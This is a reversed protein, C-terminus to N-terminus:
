QSGGGQHKTWQSYNQGAIRSNSLRDVRPAVMQPRARFTALTQQRDPPYMTHLGHPPGGYVRGPGKAPDGVPPGGPGNRYFGPTGGYIAQWGGSNDSSFFLRRNGSVAQTYQRTPDDTYASGTGVQWNWTRNTLRLSPRIPGDSPPDPMSSIRGALETGRDLHPSRDRFILGDQNNEAGRWPGAGSQGFATYPRAVPSVEPPRFRPAPAMSPLTQASGVAMAPLPTTSGGRRDQQVTGGGRPTRGHTPTTAMLREV